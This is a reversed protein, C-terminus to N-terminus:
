SCSNPVNDRTETLVDIELSPITRLRLNLEPPVEVCDGRLFGTTTSTMMASGEYGVFNRVPFHENNVDANNIFVPANGSNRLQLSLRGQSTVSATVVELEPEIQFSVSGITETAMNMFGGFSGKYAVLNYKGAPPVGDGNAIQGFFDLKVTGGYDPAKTVAIDDEISDKAHYRVGVGDMNHDESVTVALKNDDTWEVKKFGDSGFGFEKYPKQDSNPLVEQIKGGCGALLSATGVGLTQIVTRRKM